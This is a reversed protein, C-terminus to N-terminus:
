GRKLIEDLKGEKDLAITDDCGGTHVGNIFVQPVTRKGGSKTVMEMQLNTDNTIDIEKTVEYGKRKLYEKIKTCYPCYDKTYLIIEPM